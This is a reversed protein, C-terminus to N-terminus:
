NRRGVRATRLDVSGDRLWMNFLQWQGGYGQMQMRHDDRAVIDYERMPSTWGSSSALVGLM